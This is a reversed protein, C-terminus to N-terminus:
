FDDLDCVSSQSGSSSRNPQPNPESDGHESDLNSAGEIEEPDEEEDESKSEKPAVPPAPQEHLMGIHAIADGLELTLDHVQEQLFEIVTNRQIILTYSEIIQDERHTITEDRQAIVEDKATITAQLEEIQIIQRNINRRYGQAISTMQSMGCCQLIQHRYQANMFRVTACLKEEILDGLLHGFHSVRFTWEPDRSDAAPFLGIPYGVVENPHQDCFINIAELSAAEFTDALRHGVVDIEIAAVLISIFAPSYDDESQV